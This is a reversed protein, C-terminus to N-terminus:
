FSKQRKFDLAMDLCFKYIWLENVDSISRSHTLLHFIGYDVLQYVFGFIIGVVVTAYKKKYLLMGAFILLFGIDLWMYLPDFVRQAVVEM